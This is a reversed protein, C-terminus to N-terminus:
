NLLIREDNEGNRVFVDVAELVDCWVTSTVNLKSEDFMCSSEESVAASNKLAGSTPNM